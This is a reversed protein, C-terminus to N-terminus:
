RSKQKRASVPMFEEDGMDEMGAAEIADDIMDDPFPEDGAAGGITGGPGSRKSPPASPRGPADPHTRKAGGNIMATVPAPAM